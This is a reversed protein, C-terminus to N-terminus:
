KKSTSCVAFDSQWFLDVCAFLNIIIFYTRGLLVIPYAVKSSNHDDSLISDVSLINISSGKIATVNAVTSNPLYYKDNLREWALKQSLKKLVEIWPVKSQSAKDTFHSLQQKSTVAIVKEECVLEKFDFHTYKSKLSFNSFPVPSKLFRLTFCECFQLALAAILICSRM